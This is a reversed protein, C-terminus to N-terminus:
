HRESHPCLAITIRKVSVNVARIWAAKERTSFARWEKRVSPRTCVKNQPPYPTGIVASIIALSVFLVRIALM